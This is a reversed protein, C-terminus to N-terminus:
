QVDPAWFTKTKAWSLAEKLETQVDNFLTCGRNADKSISEWSILDLSRAAAMHSGYIYYYGDDAKIISPDHVSVSKFVPAAAEQYACSFLGSVFLTAAFALSIIRRLM